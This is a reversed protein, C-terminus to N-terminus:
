AARRPPSAVSGSDARSCAGARACWAELCNWTIAAVAGSVYGIAATVLVLLAATGPDFPGVVADTKMGHLRYAVDLVRQAAGTAVLLSWVVHWGGLVAAVSLGVRNPHVYGM